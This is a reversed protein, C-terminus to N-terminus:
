EAARRERLEPRDAADLCERIRAALVRVNPELVMSDHDGPVEFIRLDEVHAGWGNDELCIERDQNLRRGDRLEYVVPLPPRFLAVPGPYPRVEYKELAAVFARGIEADHFEGDRARDHVMRGPGLRAAEWAIRREIRDVLHRPGYRRLDQFLMEARDIWGLPAQRPQPTDLLVLLGINEGQARLQCAIEYATIGGGSFGGLLYPGKPQIARLEEIIDRAADEFSEHPREDGLLGRAQIGYVPRTPAILHALHRLNLINGFMGAVCFFPTGPGPSGSHIPVIQRLQPGGVPAEDDSRGLHARLRDAIAAITPAEFLISLPFEVGYRARVRQFLRVAVLSHGGLDFFGDEVGINAVGLLDEWDAVLSAEIEDRPAVYESSLDPREFKKGGTPEAADYAREALQTLAIPSVIVESPARATLIARLAAIAEDNTLGLEVQERLRRQAPSSPEAETPPTPSTTGASRLSTLHMVRFGEIEVVPAGSEDFLCVDFMAFGEARSGAVLKVRSTITAPLPRHATLKGYSSPVWLGDDETFGPIRDFAFGTGLDMLGPHLLYAEVDQALEATLSLRAVFERDGISRRNRLVRFRPGFRLRKAQSPTLPESGEGLEIPVMGGAPDHCPGAKGVAHVIPPEDDAVSSIEFDYTGNKGDIKVRVVRPRDDDVFLPAVFTLDELTFRPERTLERVAEAALELYGTGPFVARGEATRHDDLVWHMKPSLEGELYWTGDRLAWRTLLPGRAARDIRDEIKQMGFARAAMGTSAFAGWHIAFVRRGDRTDHARAYANLFANAAVYDVQGVPAVDSSISSFLCLFDLDVDRLVEDLVVTGHVKPTFVEEAESTTKTAILSDRLVGACHFVGHLAGFRAHAEHVARRMADIHTVDAYAPLVEAGLSELHLIERITSSVPDGPLSGELQAPWEERPPLALRGCLVLKAHESEALHRAVLRGLDGYAGTIMYVGGSRLKVGGGDLSVRETTRSYRRGGRLLVVDIDPEAEIEDVLELASREAIPRDANRGLLSVRPHEGREELEVDVVRATLGPIEKPAVLAPGLITAKEPHRLPEDELREMGNTLVLCHPLAPFEADVLAQFLFLLSYFGMEQNRHFINSGPRHRAESTLLWAHVIRTPHFARARLSSFLRAVDSKGREPSIRFEGNVREAFDDGPRVVVVEHGRRELRRILDDLHTGDAFFVIRERSARGAVLSPASRMYAPREFFEDFSAKRELREDTPEATPQVREFFYPRHQFAYTPLAIRRGERFQAALDLDLGAVAARALAVRFHALSDEGSGAQPTSTLIADREVDGRSAVLSSLVRGPGCEIFVPGGLDHTFSVCDDFRVPRRLHETWYRPSTAEEDTLPRGTRNSIIPISPPNLRISRLHAEFDSLIPELMRSHAAVDIPIPKAQIGERELQAVFSALVENPGSVVSLKPANVAALDLPWGELREELEDASLGVSAMGGLEVREFLEGRRHVLGVADELRLVGAVCAAANEGMSHGILAQPRLGHRMWLRALAIEFILIAPLQLSPRLLAKAAGGPDPPDLVLRKVDERVLRSLAGFGEDVDARFSADHDYLERCMGVYQAGGGPFLLIARPADIRSQIPVARTDGHRLKEVAEDLNSAALIATFQFRDRGHFLTHAVDTLAVDRKSALFDALRERQASLAKKSKASVLLVKPTGDDVSKSAPRPFAEVIAHANTGGVGLSNVAARRPEPGVFPATEAAVVFPSSAFDINPNPARYHLSAPVIGDRVVLAAKILGVVGAATDLHGINSKVSGVRCFGREDTSTRFAHTLAEIEIPDGLPTGTGHCEVYGISRADVGAITQAEVIAAAQGDVSPALYGSKSAGDNNVATGKIVAHIPDGAAIADALRRLVVVGVGSGFVTGAADADFARCHGDPSLIEGPQYLYGRRHPLEITCGGAIALDSEGSLLSQCAMHVAVLSTSCATQVNVSPGRLNFVYSARTALFDKDNGTHRLLFTGVNERLDRHSCLHFYFYSGMGCGAYVGVPGDFRSPVIGADEFAEWACELFHRHQPDMIAAEKQSLGFFEPDFEEMGDLPAFARVYNPKELRAKSEGSALLEEDSATRISERGAKLNEWFEEVNKAGPVRLAMGVIAIETGGGLEDGREDTM